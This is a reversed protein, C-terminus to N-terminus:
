VKDFFVDCTCTQSWAFDIDLEQVMYQLDDKKKRWLLSGQIEEFMADGPSIDTLLGNRKWPKGQLRTLSRQVVSSPNKKGM